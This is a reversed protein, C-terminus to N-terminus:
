LNNTKDIILAICRRYELDSVYYYSARKISYLKEIKIEPIESKIITLTRVVRYPVSYDCDYGSYYAESSALIICANCLSIEKKNM